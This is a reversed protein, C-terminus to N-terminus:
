NPKSKGRGMTCLRQCNGSQDFWLKRGCCITGTSRGCRPPSTRKPHRLHPGIHGNRGVRSLNLDGTISAYDALNNYQGPGLCLFYPSVDEDATGFNKLTVTESNPDIQILRVVAEGTASGEWFNAGVDEADGNYTYPSVGEIFSSAEDWRGANVANDVRFGNGANWQAFDRLVNANDNNFGLVNSSFLFISGNVDTVGGTTLVKVTIEENPGLTLQGSLVEVEAPNGLQPYIGAQTCFHYNSLDRSVEDFNKIIVQDEEPNLYTMRIATDDIWFKAGIDELGGVFNFPASGPIFEAADPWRGADVAQGVRNQSGAGWQLYDKLVDPSSSGFNGGEAFLGLGGAADPLAPINQTGSTIDIIVMENPALNLDGEIETYNAVHNYQGPGLCLFYPEINTPVTGVNQLTVKEQIPDVSVFRVQAHGYIGVFLGIVLLLSRM